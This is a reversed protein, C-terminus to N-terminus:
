QSVPRFIYQYTQEKKYVVQALFCRIGIAERAADTWGRKPFTFSVKSTGASQLEEVLADLMEKASAMEPADMDMDEYIRM